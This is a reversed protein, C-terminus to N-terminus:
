VNMTIVQATIAKNEYMLWVKDRVSYKTEIKM